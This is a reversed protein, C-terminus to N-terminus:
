YGYVQNLNNCLIKLKRRLNITFIFQCALCYLLFLKLTTPWMAWYIVLGTLVFSVPAVWKLHVSKFPRNFNKCRLKRLSIAAVPGTAYAVFTSVSVVTALEDMNRFFFVLAMALVLDWVM